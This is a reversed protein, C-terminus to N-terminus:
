DECEEQDCQGADGITIEVCTCKGEKNHICTDSECRLVKTETEM